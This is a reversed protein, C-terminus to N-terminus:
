ITRLDGAQGPSLISKAELIGILKFTGADHRGSKVAYGSQFSKTESRFEKIDTKITIVDSKLGAVDTKLQGVDTKLEAVDSKLVTVDSKLQGVDTRLEKLDDQIATFYTEHEDFREHVEGFKNDMYVTIEAKTTALEKRLMELTITARGGKKAM